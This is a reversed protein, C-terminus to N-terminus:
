LLSKMSKSRTWLVHSSCLFCKKTLSFMMEINRQMEGGAELTDDIAENLITKPDLSKKPSGPLYPINRLMDCVEAHFFKFYICKCPM